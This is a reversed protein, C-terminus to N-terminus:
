IMHEIDESRSRLVEALLEQADTAGSRDLVQWGGAIENKRLSRGWAPELGKAHTIM